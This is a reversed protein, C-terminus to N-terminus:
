AKINKIYINSTKLHSVNTKDKLYSVACRYSAITNVLNSILCTNYIFYTKIIVTYIFQIDFLLVGPINRLFFSSQAHRIFMIKKM